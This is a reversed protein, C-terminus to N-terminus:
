PGVEAKPANAKLVVGIAGVAAVAIAAWEEKTITGDTIAAQIVLVVPVLAAIIGKWYVALKSLM